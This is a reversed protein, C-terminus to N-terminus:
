VDYPVSLIVRTGSENQFVVKGNLESMRKRINQIGNSFPRIEDWNIGKGNDHIIIEITGNLKISFYVRTAEAHKVINHLCEKVSLFIHQRMEGPIFLAPLDLPTDLKCSINQGSLYEQAYSRTFAVLDAVTDNKQNLAWVIEGMKQAMETSYGSIKKIDEMIAEDNGKNAKMNESLFKIRSLGAGLDDHMDTAIRTREKEIAQQKELVAKQKELKRRYYFRIVFVLVGIILLGALARFWWTQWWPPAISFQHSITQDPYRGAPFSAKVDLTYDGPPLDIFSVSTNDSPESWQSISSGKLRYSYLTQKEDLFSTAAFYFNLNNQKYSLATGPTNNITDKGAKIMSVTLTPSYEASKKNETTIRILGNSVLGWATNSKDVIVKFVRQYISNQKTINEIVPANNIVTIKDLGSASSAWINNDGGCALHASFNDSLGSGADIFFKKLLKGNELRFVHIGHYRTGIWFNNQKDIILSRPSIGSLEKTFINKQELYNSPDDPKTEYMILDGSRTAVWINGMTDSAANDAFYNLKKKYVTSGKFIAALHNTECVILNGNHEIPFPSLATSDPIVIIPQPYFTAGGVRMKYVTRLGFGFVGYSTEILRLIDDSINDTNINFYRTQINEGAFAANSNKSSYLLFRNQNENFSLEYISSFGFPSEMFSFNSHVLKDVGANNTAIWSIGERDELIHSIFPQSLGSATSFSVTSGDSSVKILDTYQNGLWCSEKNYLFIFYRGLNKIKNFRDPLEKLILNGKKLENMDVSMINKETSVWIDGDPSIGVSFVKEMEDTIKKTATNYLYLSYKQDNVLTPDRQVLMYDGAQYLNKIFANVDKGKTDNFPLKVFRGDEFFHLGQDTAAYLSGKDDRSLSNIIPNIQDKLAVTKIKGNVLCNIKTMNTIVWVSDDDMEMVCNVIDNALGNNTTYNSFRAGDYVSLGHFTSFYLRGKSDQYINKVQNSILGDKPTYHVFPYQQARCSACVFFCALFFIKKQM